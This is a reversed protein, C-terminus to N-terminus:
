LGKEGKLSAIRAKRKTIEGELNAIEDELKAIDSIRKSEAAVYVAEQGLETQLWERVALELALKITKRAPESVDGPRGGMEMWDNRTLYLQSRRSYETTPKGDSDFEPGINWTGDNWKYFHVSGNYPKGRVIMSPSHSYQGGFDIYIHEGDTPKISIEGMKTMVKYFPLEM